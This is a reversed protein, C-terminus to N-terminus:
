ARKGEGTRAMVIVFDAQPVRSVWIKRGNIVWDTGDKVARTTMGAPDGGATPKPIPTPWHADGRAYPELYKRRQDADCVAMLMHLNPSDPPFTFPVCTRGQEEYVGILAVTPLNAGGFEEPVDLGWLGLERCKGPLTAEEDAALAAKQGSMERALVAKELPMVDRDIFKAVLDQLMSHEESVEFM